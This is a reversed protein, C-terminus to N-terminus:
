RAIEELLEDLDDRVYIKNRGLEVLKKKELQKLLRSVVERSTGLESAIEQHTMFLELSKLQKSKVALFKLLREDMRKFAIDDIAKLMEQFRKQYTMAVFDKWQRYENGWEEHKRIPISIVRTKEEAVAKIDSPISTSCCTLTIACTDGGDIYYLFLDHGDDDTRMVKVSGELIIPVLRLFQGSEILTQGAEYEQIKGHKEIEALLAPDTIMPIQMDM